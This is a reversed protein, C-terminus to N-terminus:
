FLIMNLSLSISGGADRFSQVISQLSSMYDFSIENGTEQIATIPIYRIKLSLIDRKNLILVMPTNKFWVNNFISKFLTISELLRNATNDESLSIDYSALSAVFIVCDVDAFAYAAPNGNTTNQGESYVM